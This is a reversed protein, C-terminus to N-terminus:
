KRHNKNYTNYKKQQYGINNTTEKKEDEVKEEVSDEVVTEVVDEVIPAEEVVETIVEEKVEVEEIEPAIFEAKKVENESIVTGRNESLKSAKFENYEVETMFKENHFRDVNSLTVKENRNENAFRRYVSGYKLCIKVQDKTLYLSRPSRIPLTPLEKIVKKPNVSYLFVTEM